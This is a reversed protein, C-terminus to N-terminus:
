ACTVCVCRIVCLDWEPTRNSFEREELADIFVVLDGVISQRSDPHFIMAVGDDSAVVDVVSSIHPDESEVMAHYM